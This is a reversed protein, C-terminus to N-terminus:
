IQDFPLIKLTAGTFLLIHENQARQLLSATYGSKSFLAYHIKYDKIKPLLASQSILHNLDSNTMKKRTWKCEGVLIIKSKKNIAAVDIEVKKNWIRGIHETDFSLEQEDGLKTILRRALEEFATKGVFADFDEKILHSMRSLRKQELLELNPYIYYFYFKMFADRIEYRSLRTNAYNQADLTILRRIFRLDLLTRLYKGMHNIPIGTKKSIDASTRIGRGIAELIALYTRPEPIEDQILFIAEQRFITVPSLIIDEINKLVTKRDDWMELYKPVGGTISYTEVIQEPSYRPLFLHLSSPEIEELLLDATSRGYLPGKGSLFEKYMMHYHSGSLLVILQVENAHQDWLMQFFSSFEPVSELLYPFEDIALVLKQSQAIHFIQELASEWDSFRFDVGIGKLCPRVAKSFKELLMDSSSKHAVWYISKDNVYNSIFHTILATKGIRRRGYVVILQSSDRKFIDKLISVENERNIFKM